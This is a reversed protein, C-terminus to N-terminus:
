QVLAVITVPPLASFSTAGYTACTSGFTSGGTLTVTNAILELCGSSGAAVGGGVTIATKPFYVVGTLKVNSGGGIDFATSGNGAIVIGPIGSVAGALPATFNVSAASISVKGSTVFTVGTGVIATGQLNIDGNVYYTGPQFTVTPNNSFSQFDSVSISSYTGPSVVVPNANWGVNLATGGGSSSVKSLASQVAVNAGYPDSIVGIASPATPASPDTAASGISQSGTISHQWNPYTAAHVSVTNGNIYGNSITISAATLNGNITSGNNISTAGANQVAGTISGVNLTLAGVNTAGSISAGSNVTLTGAVSIPGTVTGGNLTVSGGSTTTGKIAGSNMTINGVASALGGITGGIDGSNLTIAGGAQATSSITSSGNVNINGAAYANGTLTAGGDSGGGFDYGINTDNNTYVNTAVGSAGQVKTGGGVYVNGGSYLGATSMTTGGKVQIDSNSRVVCGSTNFNSGGNINVGLVTGPTAEKALALVCPQAVGATSQVLEAWAAATPHLATTGILMAALIPTVPRTITVKFAQDSSSRVGSVLAITVYSNSTTNTGPSWSRTAAPIGNIEALNIAATEAAQITNGANLLKAATLASLDAVRQLVLRHNEWTAVETALAVMGLMVPMMIATMVAISGRRDAGLGSRRPSSCCAIPRSQAAHTRM